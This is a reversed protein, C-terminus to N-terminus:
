KSEKFFISEYLGNIGALLFKVFSTKSIKSIKLLM